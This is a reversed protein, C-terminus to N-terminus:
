NEPSPFIMTCKSEEYWVPHCSQLSFHSRQPDQCHSTNITVFHSEACFCIFMLVQIWSRFQWSCPPPSLALCLYTSFFDLVEGLIIIYSLLRIQEWLDCIVYCRTGNSDSYSLSCYISPAMGLDILDFNKTTNTWPLTKNFTKEWM